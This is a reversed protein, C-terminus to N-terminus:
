RAPRELETRAPVLNPNLRLAQTFDAVALDNQGRRRYELGRYYYVVANGPNLRISQTYDAIADDDRGMNQNVLGRNYYADANKPDLHLAQTYDAIALDGQGKHLYAVARDLLAPVYNPDARLAQSFDAVADDLQRKDLYGVGRNNYVIALSNGTVKGSAILQSCAAITQDPSANADGCTQAANQARAPAAACLALALVFLSAAARM